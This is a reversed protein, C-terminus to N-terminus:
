GNNGTETERVQLHCWHVEVLTDQFIMFTGEVFFPPIVSVSTCYRVRRDNFLMITSIEFTRAPTQNEFRIQQAGIARFQILYLQVNYRSYVGRGEHGDYFYASLLVRLPPLRLSLIM